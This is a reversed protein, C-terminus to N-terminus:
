PHSAAVTFTVNATLTGPDYLKVCYEGADVTAAVQVAASTLTNVATTLYCGGGDSRPIGLGLGVLVNPPSGSTLIASLSGNQTATVIRSASGQVTLVSSFIDTGPAPTVTTTNSVPAVVARIAYNVDATLTGVDYIEICHTGATRETRIHAALAPSVRRDTTRPCGETEEPPTGLALGVTSPRPAGVPGATMSAVSISAISAEAVVLQHVSSGGPSLTGSFVNTVIPSVISGTPETPSGCGAASLFAAVIALGPVALRRAIVFHRTM